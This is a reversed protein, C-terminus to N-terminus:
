KASNYIETIVQKWIILIQAWLTHLPKSTVGRRVAANVILQNFHVASM